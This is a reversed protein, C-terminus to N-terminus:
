NWSQSTYFTSGHVVRLADVGVVKYDHDVVRWPLALHDECDAELSARRRGSGCRPRWGDTRSRLSAPTGGLPLRTLLFRRQYLIFRQAPSSRSLDLLARRGYASLYTINPNGYPSGGREQLKPLAHRRTLGIIIYDYFSIPLASTAEHM